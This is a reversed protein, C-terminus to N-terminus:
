ENVRLGFDGPVLWSGSAFSRITRGIRLADTIGLDLVHNSKTRSLRRNPLNDLFVENPIHKSRSNLIVSGDTFIFNRYATFTVFFIHENKFFYDPLSVITDNNIAGTDNVFFRNIQADDFGVDASLVFVQGQTSFDREQGTSTAFFLRSVPGLPAGITLATWNLINKNHVRIDRGNGVRFLGGSTALLACRGSVGADSFSAYTTNLGSVTEITALITVDLVGTGMNSTALNIRDFTKDTLVYLFQGDSM